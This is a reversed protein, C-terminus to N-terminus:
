ANKTSATVAATSPKEPDGRFALQLFAVSHRLVFRALLHAFEPVAQLSLGTDIGTKVFLGAHRPKEKKASSL